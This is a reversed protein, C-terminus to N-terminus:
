GAVKYILDYHGPRYCLATADWVDDSADAEFAIFDVSALGDEPKTTSADVYAVKLGAGLCRTLATISLHDADRDVAEVDERSFAM